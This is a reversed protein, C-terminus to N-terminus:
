NTLFVSSSQMLFCKEGIAVAKSFKDNQIGADHLLVGVLATLMHKRAVAYLNELDDSSLSTLDPKMKNVACRCLYILNETANHYEFESM